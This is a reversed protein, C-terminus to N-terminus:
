QRYEIVETVVLNGNSTYQKKKVPYGEADFEYQYTYEIGAQSSESMLYNDSFQLNYFLDPSYLILNNSNGLMEKRFSLYNGMIVIETDYLYNMTQSGGSSTETYSLINNGDYTIERTLDLFENGTMKYIQGNANLLFSDITQGGPDHDATITNDNNYTFYDDFDSVWSTYHTDKKHILRGQEDYNLDVTYDLGPSGDYLNYGEIFSVAGMEDFYYYKEALQLPQSGAKIHLEVPHNNLFKIVQNPQTSTGYYSTITRIEKTEPENSQNVPDNNDDSCSIFVIACLCLLIKKM